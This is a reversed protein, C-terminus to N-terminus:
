KTTRRKRSLMVMGGLSLMMLMALLGLQTNDGTKPLEHYTNVVLWGYPDDQMQQIDSAYGAGLEDESVHYVIERGNAYKYLPQGSATQAFTHYWNESGDLVVRNVEVGDAYLRITVPRMNNESVHDWTKWVRVSVTEPEHTNVVMLNGNADTTYTISYDLNGFPKDTSPVYRGNEDFTGFAHYQGSRDTYGVEVISPTGRRGDYSFQVSYLNSNVQVTVDKIADQSLLVGDVLLVFRVSQPRVGDRDNDDNWQKYATLSVTNPKYEYSNVIRASAANGGKLTVTNGVSEAGDDVKIYIVGEQYTWGDSPTSAPDKEVIRYTGNLLNNFTHSEDAKITVEEVLEYQGSSENLKQLQVTFTPAFNPDKWGSEAEIEKRVTLFNYKLNALDDWNFGNESIVDYNISLEYKTDNPQYNAPTKTEQLVYEHGSPLNSFTVKGNADSEAYFPGIQTDGMDRTTAEIHQCISCNAADHTLTFGVGAIGAGTTGDKKNFELESLYGKVEPVDFKAKRTESFTEKGDKTEVVRYYFYTEENTPYDANEVFSGDENTLRVYYEVEYDYYTVGDVTTVVPETKLINWTFGDKTETVTSSEQALGRFEILDGMPDNAVWLGETGETCVERITKFMDDYIGALSSADDCSAYQGAYASTTGQGSINKALWNRYAAAESASGIVYEGNAYCDVTSYNRGAHKELYTQISQSGINVGVTHVYIGSSRISAAERQARTAGEDSYDTGYSCPLNLKRNRFRNEANGETPYGTIGTLSTMDKSTDSYTTPFGDTLLIIHKFMASSQDLMNHALRLGGEINTYRDSGAPVVIAEITDHVYTSGKASLAEKTQLPILASANSNFTVVGLQREVGLEDYQEGLFKAAFAQAAKKASAIRTKGSADANGSEEGYVFNMTNSIDLVFVIATNGYMLEAITKQTRVKLKIKFLNEWETSELTKSLEFGDEGVSYATPQSARVLQRVMTTPEAFATSAFLLTMCVLYALLKKGM